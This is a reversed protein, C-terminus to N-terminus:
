VVKQAKLIFDAALLGLKFRYLCELKKTTLVCLKPFLRDLPKLWLNFDYYIFDTIVLSNSTMAKKLDNLPIPKEFPKEKIPRRRLKRLANFFNGSNIHDDWLRYLSYKNQMSMIVFGDDMIVRTFEGIVRNIDVLYELVGLCVLVNFSDNPFPLYIINGESLLLTEGEHRKQAEFLMECSLDIGFFTGNKDKIIDFM